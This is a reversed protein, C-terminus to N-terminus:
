VLALHAFCDVLYTVACVHRSDAAVVGAVATAGKKVYLSGVWEDNLFHQAVGLKRGSVAARVDRDLDRLCSEGPEFRQEFRSCM